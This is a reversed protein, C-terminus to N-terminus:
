IMAASFSSRPRPFYWTGDPCSRFALWYKGKWRILDTFANHEGNHFVRRVNQVRVGPPDDDAHTTQFPFAIWMACLSAIVGILRKQHLRFM